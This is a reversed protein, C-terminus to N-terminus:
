WVQFQYKLFYFGLKLPFFYCVGSKMFKMLIEEVGTEM